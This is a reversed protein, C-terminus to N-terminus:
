AFSLEAAGRAMFLPLTGYVYLGHSSNANLPNWPSCRADFYSGKGGTDPYRALCDAIQETRSLDDGSPNLQRGLGQVVDTMFREDPHLHTFDEWNLGVFRFYGGVLMVVILIVGILVNSSVASNSRVRTPATLQQVDQM